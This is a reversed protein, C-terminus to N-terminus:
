PQVARNYIRVEDILGSWFTGSALTSGAGIYLGGASGALTAGLTDRAVETGDVYLVRKAGDWVLGIRHWAGDTIVASSTLAPMARGSAPIQTTLAGNPAAAMLWNSAGAQSLVVQGPKGGKVWLIVSFPGASPDCVFQTTVFRVGGDFQLAGGVKGGTPQWTPLGFLTGNNTGVSDAAVTGSAEDLKWHAILAPNYAEQGWYRMLVELDKEDVKGDGWPMPGIDCLPDNQGWHEILVLLDKIDATGDGNFDVIPIIPAQYLDYSGVGGARDSCLYLISGDPSVSPCRESATTNISPGLKVPTGWDDSTSTRRAMWIDGPPMLPWRSFFLALGDVSIYPDAECDGSNVSLGLEVPPGWPSDKTARTSVYIGEHWTFKMRVFFLSLGDASISTCLDYGTSNVPPGLNVPRGWPADVSPRTTVWIGYGGSRNSSFYLSLGDFSISPLLDASASNVTAGLNVPPGWSDSITARTIVWLDYDGSGGPRKSTFYLSLGDSSISPSWDDSGSNVVSGVNVPGGFIFDAVAPGPSIALAAIVAVLVLSAKSGDQWKM